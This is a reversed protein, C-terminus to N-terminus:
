SGRVPRLVERVKLRNGTHVIARRYVVSGFRGALGVAVVGILLSLAMEAPDAIGLAIRAPMVLPATFPVLGLVAGFPGDAARQAVLAGVLILTLPMVVSGAEEQREVLAGLAGALTLYFAVGLLIWPLGGSLAALLGAPLDGGIALKVVVPLIGALVTAMGTLGVGIVKGFLLAGPRVIALLVESIGNAKEIATGTAVALMLTLLIVYLVSGIIAAAAERGGSGANREEVRPPPTVLLAQAQESGIGAEQLRVALLSTALAQQVLRVVLKNDGSQVVVVPNEGADAAVDVKGAEVARRATDLDTAAIVDVNADITQAASRLSAEFGPPGNVIAVRYHTRESGILGPVIMAASSGILLLVVVVWFSRRRLAQRVERGAVLVIDNM